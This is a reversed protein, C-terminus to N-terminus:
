LALYERIRDRLCQRQADDQLARNQRDTIYFIDEARAGFTSVRANHLRAGCENLAMGIRSLLGPRDTSIVEMVTRGTRQDEGFEVQTPIPFQKIQRPLHQRVNTTVPVLRSINQYLRQEIEHQRFGATIPSGDSELIMYTDFALGDNSSIIRADVITLGLQDLTYTVIAFLQDNIPSHVFVETGGREPTNHLQILPLQAATLNSIAQLHRVIELPSYRLMYDQNMRALHNAIPMLDEDNGALLRMVEDRTQEIQEQLLLPNELGRALAAKTAHYLENLLAEKWANWVTPSTARIDAVTLLYLYDLRTKQGVQHAFDNIVQPDSLDKRQSTSSMILHKDVLWAVVETDYESLGHHRCFLRADNAGLNSHDGGRGKAIDHFLAALYLLEPKPVQQIIASCLPFEHQFEPVTLRRLNRVVFM